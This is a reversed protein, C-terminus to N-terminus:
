APCPLPLRLFAIPNPTPRDYCPVRAPEGKQCGSNHHLLSCSDFRDHSRDEPRHLLSCRFFQRCDSTRYREADSGLTHMEAQHLASAQLPSFFRDHWSQEDVPAVITVISFRAGQRLPEVWVERCRLGATTLSSDGSRRTRWGHRRWM